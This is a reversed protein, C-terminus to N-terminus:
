DDLTPFQWFDPPRSSLSQLDQALNLCRSLSDQSNSRTESDGKDSHSSLKHVHTKKKKKFWFLWREGEPSRWNRHAYSEHFPGSPPPQFMAAHNLICLTGASSGLRTGLIWSPRSMIAQLKLQLPDLM